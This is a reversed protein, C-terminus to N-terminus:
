TCCSTTTSRNRSSPTPAPACPGSSSVRAKATLVVVPIPPLHTMAKLRALFLFRDGGPLGIDPIILQPEERRAVGLGTISGTATVVKYGQTHLWLSLGLVLDQDDDVILIREGAM